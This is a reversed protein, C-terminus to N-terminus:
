KELFSRLGGVSPSKIAMLHLCSLQPPQAAGSRLGEYKEERLAFGAWAVHNLELRTLYLSGGFWAGM